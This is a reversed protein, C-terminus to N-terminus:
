EFISEGAAIKAAYFQVREASGLEGADPTNEFPDLGHFKLRKGMKKRRVEGKTQPPGKYKYVVQGPKYGMAVFGNKETAVVYFNCKPDLDSDMIERFSQSM